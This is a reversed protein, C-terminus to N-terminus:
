RFPVHTNCMPVLKWTCYGHPFCPSSEPFFNYSTVTGSISLIQKYLRFLNYVITIQCFLILDFHRTSMPFFHIFNISPKFMGRSFGLSAKCLLGPYLTKTKFSKRSEFLHKQTHIRSLPWELMQHSTPPNQKSNSPGYPQPTSCAFLRDQAPRPRVTQPLSNFLREISIDGHFRLGLLFSSCRNLLFSRCLTSPRIHTLM